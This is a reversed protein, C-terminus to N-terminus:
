SSRESEDPVLEMLYDCAAAMATVNDPGTFEALWEMATGVKVEGDGVSVIYSPM